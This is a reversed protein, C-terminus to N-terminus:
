IRQLATPSRQVTVLTPRLGPIILIYATATTAVFIVFYIVTFIGTNILDKVSLKKSVNKVNSM